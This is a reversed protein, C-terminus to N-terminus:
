QKVLAALEVNGADINRSERKFVKIFSSVVSKIKNYITKFINAEELKSVSYTAKVSSVTQTTKLAENLINQTAANVKTLALNFAEKYKINTSDYGFRAIHILHSDTEILKDGVEKLDGVVVQIEKDFKAFEAKKQKLESEMKKIQVQLDYFDSIKQELQKDNVKMENIFEDYLKLYM